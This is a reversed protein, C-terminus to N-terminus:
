SPPDSPVRSEELREYCSQAEPAPGRRTPLSLIRIVQIHNAQPFTLVDGVRVPAAAKEVVRGSVRVRGDRCLDAAAARTKLFRAYWLFLDLRLSDASM